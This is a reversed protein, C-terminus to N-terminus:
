MRVMTLWTTLSSWFGTEHEVMTDLIKISMNSGYGSMAAKFSYGVITQWQIRKKLILSKGHSFKNHGHNHCHNVM